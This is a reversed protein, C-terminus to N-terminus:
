ENFPIRIFRGQLLEMRALYTAPVTAMIRKAHELDIGRHHALLEEPSEFVTERDPPLTGIGKPVEIGVNARYKAAGACQPLHPNKLFEGFGVEMYCPLYMGAQAQGIFKQGNQGMTDLYTKPTSKAFPCQGCCRERQLM